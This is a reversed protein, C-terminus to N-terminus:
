TSDDRLFADGRHKVLLPEQRLQLVGEQNVHVAGKLVLLAEIEHHLEHRASVETVVDARLPPERFILRSEEDGADEM